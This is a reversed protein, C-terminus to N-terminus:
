RLKAYSQAVGEILRLKALHNIDYPRHQEDYHKFNMPPIWDLIWLVVYPTLRLPALTVCLTLMRLHLNCWMSWLQQWRWRHYLRARHLYCEHADYRTKGCNYFRRDDFELVRATWASLEIGISSTSAHYARLDKELSACGIDLGHLLCYAVYSKQSRVSDEIRDPAKNAFQDYKAYAKSVIWWDNYKFHKTDSIIWDIGEASDEDVDLHKGGVLYFSKRIMNEIYGCANESPGKTRLTGNCGSDAVEVDLGLIDPLHATLERGFNERTLRAQLDEVCEQRLDRLKNIKTQLSNM